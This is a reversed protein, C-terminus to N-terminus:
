GNAKLMVKVKLVQMVKLMVKLMVKAKMSGDYSVAIHHVKNDAVVSASTADLKSTQGQLVFSLKGDQLGVRGGVGEKISIKSVIDANKDGSKMWFSYSLPIKGSLLGNPVGYIRVQGGGRTFTLTGVKGNTCAVPAANKLKELLSGPGAYFSACLLVAGAILLTVVLFRENRLHVSTKM